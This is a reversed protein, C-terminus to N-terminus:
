GLCAAVCWITRLRATAVSRGEQKGEGFLSIHSLQIFQNLM